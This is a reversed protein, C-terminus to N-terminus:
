QKRRLPAFRELNTKRTRELEPLTANKPGNTRMRYSYTKRGNSAQFTDITSVLAWKHSGREKETGSRKGGGGAGMGAVRADSMENEQNGERKKLM